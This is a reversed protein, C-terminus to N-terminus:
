MRYGEYRVAAAILAPRGAETAALAKELAADLEQPTAAAAAAWGMGGAVAVYDPRGFDVGYPPYGRREQGWRILSLSGDVFVVALVALGLRAATELEGLGMLLAGDGVAALVPRDPHVLKAAMAAPLAYGMSSLGNSVFYQRPGDARWFQGMAMKHFGTDVTVITTPGLARRLKGILVHPELGRGPVPGTGEAERAWDAPRPQRAHELVARRRAAVAEATWRREPRTGAARDLAELVAPMPGVLTWAAPVFPEHHPALELAIVEAPFDWYRDFEVGDVGAALVLDAEALWDFLLDKGVMELVGAFYPHDEPFVGKAKPLVMAPLGWREAFRVLGPRAGGRLAGTGAVLVPRRAELLRRAVPALREPEFAAATVERDELRGKPAPAPDTEAPRPGYGRPVELLVPGPREAVAVELARAVVRGATEPELRLTEKTVPRYLAQLDLRQHTHVWNLGPPLQAVVALMPSRDLYAHAVGTLLNTAGPGLTALCVGPRGTLDGWTAAMFAAATEHHTLVFRIGEARLAELVPTIEGGPLGFAHTIGAAKLLRALTGAVTLTESPRPDATMPIGGAVTRELGPHGSVDRSSGQVWAVNGVGAALRRAEALRGTGDLAVAAREKGRFVM